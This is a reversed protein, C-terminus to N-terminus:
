TDVFLVHISAEAKVPEGDETKAPEFRLTQVGQQIARKEADTLPRKAPEGILRHGAVRGDTGVTVRLSVGDVGIAALGTMVERPIPMTNTLPVPRHFAAMPAGSREPGESGESRESRGAPRAPALAAQPTARAAQGKGTPGPGDSTGDSPGDDGGDAGGAGYTGYAGDARAAPATPKEATPPPALAVIPAMQSAALTKPTKPAGRDGRDGRKGGPGNGGDDGDDGDDGGMASGAPYQRAPPDSAGAPRRNGLMLFLVLALTFAVAALAVIAMVKSTDWQRVKVNRMSATMLTLTMVDDSSELPRRNAATLHEMGKLSFPEQWEIRCAECATLMSKKMSEITPYRDERDKALAKMLVHKLPVPFDPCHWDIPEPDEKLRQVLTEVPGVSSFPLRGTMARYFTIALSYQDTRGDVQTGDAQEPSMYAPTGLVNSTQTFDLSDASKAIGFDTLCPSGNNLLMINAPKIDRHVVGNRHSYALADMLPICLKAFGNIDLRVGSDIITSLSPGNILQMSYWHLGDLHGFDYVRVIGPHDLSACVRAEQIFRRTTDESLSNTLVKLAELRGLRVNQVEYVIGAGGKGLVSVFVYRGSLLDILRRPVTSTEPRAM